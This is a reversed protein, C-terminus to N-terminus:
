TTYQVMQFSGADILHLYAQAQQESFWVMRAGVPEFRYVYCLIYHCVTMTSTVTSKKVYVESDLFLYIIKM